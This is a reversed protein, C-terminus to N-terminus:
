RLWQAAAAAVAVFAIAVDLTSAAVAFVLDNLSGHYAACSHYEFILMLTFAYEFNALSPSPSPRAPRPPPPPTPPSPQGQAQSSTDM